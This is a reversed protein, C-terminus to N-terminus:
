VQKLAAATAIFVLVAITVMLIIAVIWFLRTSIALENAAGAKTPFPLIDPRDTRVSADMEEALESPDMQQTDAGVSFPGGSKPHTAEFEALLAAAGRRGGANLQNAAETLYSSVTNESIGLEQAIEKVRYRRHYLRLCERQRPALNEIRNADM